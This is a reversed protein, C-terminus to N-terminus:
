ALDLLRLYLNVGTELVAEDFDFKSNHLPIDTGTGLFLYVGPVEQQYFSFDESLMSPKGLTIFNFDRLKSKVKSFLAPDNYVTPYGKTFSIEIKCDFDKEYTSAIEKMRKTIFNFTEENFCRLTGKLFAKDAIVNPATGSTLKGFRLLRPENQPLENSEMTYYDQLLNIAILLADIGKDPDACHAGKGYINVTVENAHSMLEKEKSAIGHKEISPWLHIGYIEAVQYKSLVGSQCIAEAGGVSEEAPQFILLVNYTLRSLNEHLKSAAGLLMAMHGDHGCAHMFGSHCSCYTTDKTEQVPLADMDCRLAITKCPTQKSDQASAKFYACIATDGIETIECQYKELVKLIYTKTKFEQNAIEPIQHLDRRYKKLQNLM